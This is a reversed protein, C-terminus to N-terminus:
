VAEKHQQLYAIVQDADCRGPVGFVGYRVDTLLGINTYAAWVEDGPRIYSVTNQYLHKTEWGNEKAAQEIRERGTM